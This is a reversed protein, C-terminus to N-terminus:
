RRVDHSVFRVYATLGNMGLAPTFEGHRVLLANMQDALEPRERWQESDGSPARAAVEIAAPRGPITSDGQQDLLWWSALSVMAFAAAMALWRPAGRAPSGAGKGSAAGPALVVPEQELRDVIRRCLAEDPEADERRIAARILHYRRWAGALQPDASLQGITRHMEDDELEGDLLASIHERNM